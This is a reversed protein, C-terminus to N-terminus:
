SSCILGIPLTTTRAESAGGHGGPAGRRHPWRDTLLAAIRKQAAALRDLM